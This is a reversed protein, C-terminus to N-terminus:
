PLLLASTLDGIYATIAYAASVIVLGVVASRILEQSKKVQDQNGQATMWRIGATLMLFFFLIGFFAFFWKLYGNILTWINADNYGINNKTINLGGLRSVAAVPQALFCAVSVISFVLFKRM